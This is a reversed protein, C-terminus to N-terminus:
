YPFGDNRKKMENKILAIEQALRKNKAALRGVEATLCFSIIFLLIAAFMFVMNSAIEVGIIGAFVDLIQPFASMALVAACMGMWFLSYKLDIKKRATMKVIAILLLLAVFFVFMRSKQSM